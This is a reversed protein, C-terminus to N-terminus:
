LISVPKGKLQSVITNRPNPRFALALILFTLALFRPSQVRLNTVVGRNLFYHSFHCNFWKETNRDVAASMIADYVSLGRSASYCSCFREDALQLLAYGRGDSKDQWLWTTLDAYARVAIPMSAAREFTAEPERPAETRGSLNLLPSRDWRGFRLREAHVPCFEIGAVQHIRRFWTFGRCALDGVVCSQCFKVRLCPPLNYDPKFLVDMPASGGPQRFREPVEAGEVLIGGAGHRRYYSAYDLGATTALHRLVRGGAACSVRRITRNRLGSWARLLPVCSPLNNLVAIRQLHSWAPEDDEPAATLVRKGLDGTGLSSM